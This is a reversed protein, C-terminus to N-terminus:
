CPLEPNSLGLGWRGASLAPTKSSGLIRFVFALGKTSSSHCCPFRPQWYGRGPAATETKLRIACDLAITCYPSPLTLLRM